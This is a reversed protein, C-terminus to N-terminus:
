HNIQSRRKILRWKNMWAFNGYYKYHEIIDLSVHITNSLLLVFALHNFFSVALLSGNFEPSHFVYTGPEMKRRLKKGIQWWKAPNLTKYKLSFYALHDIDILVGALIFILITEFNWNFYYRLPVVALSNVSFHVLTNM